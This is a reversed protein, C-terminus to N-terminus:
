GIIRVGDWLSLRRTAKLPLQVFGQFSDLDLKYPYSKAIKVRPCYTIQGYPIPKELDIAGENLDTIQYNTEALM